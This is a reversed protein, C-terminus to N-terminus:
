DENFFDKWDDNSFLEQLTEDASKNEVEEKKEQKEVVHQEKPVGVKNNIVKNSDKIVTNNSKDNKNTNSEVTVNMTDKTENYDKTEISSGSLTAFLMAIADILLIVFCMTTAETQKSFLLTAVIGILIAAQTSALLSNWYLKLEFFRTKIFITKTFKM